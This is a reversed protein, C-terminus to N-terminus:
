CSCSLFRGPINIKQLLESFPFGVTNFLGLAVLIPINYKEVKYSDNSFTMSYQPAEEYAM